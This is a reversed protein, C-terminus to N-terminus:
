EITLKLATASDRSWIDTRLVQAPSFSWLTVQLKAVDNPLLFDNSSQGGRVATKVFCQDYGEVGDRCITLYTKAPVASGLRVDVTMTQNTSFNFSKPVTIGATGTAGDTGGDTTPPPTAGSGADTTPSPPAGGGGCGAAFLIFLSALFFNKVTTMM